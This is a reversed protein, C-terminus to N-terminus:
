TEIFPLSISTVLNFEAFYECLQEETATYPLGRIKIARDRNKETVFDQLRVTKKVQQRYIVM